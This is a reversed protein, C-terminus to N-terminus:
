KAKRRVTFKRTEVAPREEKAPPKKETVAPPRSKGTVPSTKEAVAPQQDETRQRALLQKIHKRFERDTMSAPQPITEPSPSNRRAPSDPNRQKALLDAIYQRFERDNV